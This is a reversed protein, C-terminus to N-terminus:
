QESFTVLPKRGRWRNRPATGPARISPPHHFPAASRTGPVRRQLPVDGIEIAVVVAQHTPPLRIAANAIEADADTPARHERCDDDAREALEGAASPGRHADGVDM